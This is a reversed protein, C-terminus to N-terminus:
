MVLVSKFHIALQRWLKQQFRRFNQFHEFSTPFTQAFMKSWKSAAQLCLEVLDQYSHSQLRPDIYLKESM